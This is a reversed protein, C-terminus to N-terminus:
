IDLRLDYGGRRARASLHRRSLWLVAGKVRVTFATTDRIPIVPRHATPHQGLPPALLAWSRTREYPASAPRPSGGTLRSEMGVTSVNGGGMGLNM